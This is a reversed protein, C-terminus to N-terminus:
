ISGSCDRMVAVTTQKVLFYYRNSTPKVFNSPCEHVTQYVNVDIRKGLNLIKLSTLNKLSVMYESGTVHLESLNLSLTQLSQVDLSFNGSCFLPILGVCQPCFMLDTGAKKSRQLQNCLINFINYVHVIDFM